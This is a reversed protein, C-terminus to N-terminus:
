QFELIKLRQMGRLGTLGVVAKKGGDVAVEVAFGFGDCRLVFRDGFGVSEVRGRIGHMWGGSGQLGVEQGGVVKEM